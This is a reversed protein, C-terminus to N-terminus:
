LNIAAIADSPVWGERDGPAKVLTWGVTTRLIRVAGGEDLPSITPARGHPSLRLTTQDLVVAVPRRYWAQLAVGAFAACASFALLIGWRDRFRPRGVWGFWGLLWGGAGLLLLEQPTVPASWLWRSSTPDPVPTLRM